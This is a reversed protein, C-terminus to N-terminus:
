PLPVVLPASTGQANTATISVSAAANSLTATPNSNGNSFTFPITVVFQGGFTQAAASEFWASAVSGVPVTVSAGTLNYGSAAMFSFALQALTQSNSVGSIALTLGTVSQASIQAGILLPATAPVVLQLSQSAPTTLPVGSSTQFTAILTITGSTSGTQLRISTSGNAFVAATTNAPISFAVTKGSTAFQIAPDASFGDPAVTMTLTGTVALPYPSALNLTIAPQQLPGLTGQPGTISFSPFAPPTGGAGTLQFVTGDLHLTGSVSAVSTPTFTIGFTATQNIGITLPLPPLGTIAFPSNAEGIYIGSIVGAATGANTVTFTTSSSQGLEATAFFLSGNPSVANTSSGTTYSYQYLPGLGKAVITVTSAGVTLSGNIIGAQAPTFNFTLNISGGPLLTQPVPPPNVLQFGNGTLSITNIAATANGNNTATVSVSTTVGVPTPTLSVQNQNVPLVQTGQTFQFNLQSSIGTGSLTINVTQGGLTLQLVGSDAAIAAPTYVISIQLTQGNNITVPFLPLGTTQFVAGTLAFSKLVGPASGTNEIAFAATTSTGVVTPPFTLTGGDSLPVENGGPLIAYGLVFNPSTGTFSLSITGNSSSTGVTQTYPISLSASAVAGSSPLYVVLFSTAEGSTLTAAGGSGVSFASSGFLQGASLSATAGGTYTVGVTVPQAQGVGSAAVNINAGNGVVEATSGNQVQIQFQASASRASGLFGAAILIASVLLKSHRM